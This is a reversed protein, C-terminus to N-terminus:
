FFIKNYRTSKNKFLTWFELRLEKIIKRSELNLRGNCHKSEWLKFCNLVCDFHNSTESSELVRIVWEFDYVTKKIEVELVM